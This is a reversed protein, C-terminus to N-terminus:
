KRTKINGTNRRIENKTEEILKRIDHDSKECTHPINKRTKVGNKIFTCATCNAKRSM